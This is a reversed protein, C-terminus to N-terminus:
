GGDEECDRDRRRVRALLRAFNANSDDGKWRNLFWCVVQINGRVYGRDSDIRDPSAQMDPDDGEGPLQLPLGSIACRQGNAHMLDALHDMLEMRSMNTTKEKVRREVVQGNSKAVTELIRGATDYAAREV